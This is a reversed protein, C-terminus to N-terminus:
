PFAREITTKPTIIDPDSRSNTAAYSAAHPSHVLATYRCARTM